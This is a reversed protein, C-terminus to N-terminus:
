RVLSASENLYSSYDREPERGGFPNQMPWLGLRRQFSLHTQDRDYKCDLAAQISRCIQFGRRLLEHFRDSVLWAVLIITRDSSADFTGMGVKELVIGRFFRLSHLAALGCPSWMWWWPM